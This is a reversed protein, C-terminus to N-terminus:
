QSYFLDPNSANYPVVGNQGNRTSPLWWPIWSGSRDLLTTSVGTTLNVAQLTQTSYFPFQPTSGDASRNVYLVKQGNNNVVTFDLVVGRGALKPIVTKTAGFVGNVDGYLVATEAASITNNMDYEHGGVALDLIGDGNVDLLEVSFFPHGVQGPVRTNDIKFTGNKQNILFHVNLGGPNSINAVVIDPYGDANVDAASAGHYFGVDTADTVAFGGKGDSLVLKSKEGPLPLGDYGHCAVFVDPYGDLNFDAVVAKRPHLCGKYTPGKAVLTGDDAKEWFQFDSQYASPAASIAAIPTGTNYNQKATFISVNGIQFFDGAGWALPQDPVFTALSSPFNIRSLGYGKANQYSSAFPAIKAGLTVKPIVATPSDDSGSGGGCGAMFLLCLLEARLISKPRM